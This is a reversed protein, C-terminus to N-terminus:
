AINAALKITLLNILRPSVIVLRPMTNLLPKTLLLRARLVAVLMVVVVEM